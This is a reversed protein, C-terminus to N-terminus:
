PQEEGLRAALRSMLEDDSLADLDVSVEGAFPGFAEIRLHHIRM